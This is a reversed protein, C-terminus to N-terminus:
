ELPCKLDMVAVITGDEDYRVGDMSGTWFDIYPHVSTIDPTMHYDMDLIGSTQVHLECLKGWSLPRASSDRGLSRGHVREMNREEIYTLAPAGLSGKAKGNKMLKYINSSTFNGVREINEIISM